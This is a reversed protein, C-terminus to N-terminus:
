GDHSFVCRNALMKCGPYKVSCVFVDSQEQFLFFFLIPRCQDGEAQGRDSPSLPRSGTESPPDRAENGRARAPQKVSQDGM